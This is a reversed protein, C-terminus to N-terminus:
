AYMKKLAYQLQFSNIHMLVSTLLHIVCINTNVLTSERAIALAIFTSKKVGMRHWLYFQMNSIYVNTTYMSVYIKSPADNSHIWEYGYRYPWSIFVYLFVQHYIHMYMICIIQLVINEAKSIFAKLHCFCNLQSYWFQYTIPLLCLLACLFLVSFFFLCPFCLLSCPLLLLLLLLLIWVAFM